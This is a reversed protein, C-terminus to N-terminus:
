GRFFPQENGNVYVIFSKVKVGCKKLLTRTREVIYDDLMALESKDAKIQVGDCGQGQATLTGASTDVKVFVVIPEAAKEQPAAKAPTKKATM